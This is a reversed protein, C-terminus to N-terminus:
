AYLVAPEALLRALDRLFEAGVAGDVVQHDITLSLALMQRPSPAGNALVLRDTIRGVGLITVEPPNLIPTFFDIGYMGLNTLSFTSGSAEAPKLNGARAAEALRKIEASLRALSLREANMVVPAILGESLAVAIGLHIPRYQHISGEVLHANLRPHNPLTLVVARALLDTYSVDTTQSREAKLRALETIDAESFLTLQASRTLSEMMRRATIQRIGALPVAEYELAEGGAKFRRVDEETIRGGAGGPKVLRLDVGLEKAM